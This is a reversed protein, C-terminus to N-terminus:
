RPRREMRELAELSFGLDGIECLVGCYTLRLHASRRDPVYAV